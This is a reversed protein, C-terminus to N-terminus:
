VCTLQQQPLAIEPSFFFGLSLKNIMSITFISCVHLSFRFTLLLALRHSPPSLFSLAKLLIAVHETKPNLLVLEEESDSEPEFM